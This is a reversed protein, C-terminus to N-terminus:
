STTSNHKGDDNGSSRAVGAARCLKMPVQVQLIYNPSDRIATFTINTTNGLIINYQVIINYHIIATPGIADAIITQTKTKFRQIYCYAHIISKHDFPDGGFKHVGCAKYLYIFLTSARVDGGYDTKIIKRTYRRIVIVSWQKQYARIRINNRRQGDTIPSDPHGVVHTIDYNRACDAVVFSIMRVVGTCTYHARNAIVNKDILIECYAAPGIIRRVCTYTQLTRRPHLTRCTGDPVLYSAYFIYIFLCSVPKKSRPVRRRRRERNTIPRRFVYYFHRALRFNVADTRHHTHHV